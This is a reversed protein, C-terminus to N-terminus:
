VVLRYVFLQKVLRFVLLLGITILIKKRLDPIKWANKVTQFMNAM